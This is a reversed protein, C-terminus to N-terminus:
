EPDPEAQLQQLCRHLEARYRGFMRDVYGRGSAYSWAVAALGLLGAGALWFGAGQRAGVIGVLVAAFLGFMSVYAALYARAAADLAGVLAGLVERLSRDFPVRAIRRESHWLVAVLVGILGAIGVASALRTWTVEYLLGTLGIAALPLYSTLERRLRRRARQQVGSVQREIMQMIASGEIPPAEERELQQWCDTFVKLEM